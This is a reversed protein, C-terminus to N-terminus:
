GCSDMDVISHAPIGMSFQEGFASGLSDINLAVPPFGVYYLCFTGEGFINM